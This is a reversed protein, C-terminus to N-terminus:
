QSSRHCAPILQSTSPDAPVDQCTSPHSPLEGGREAGQDVGFSVPFPVPHSQGLMGKEWCRKIGLGEEWLCVCAGPHSQQECMGPLPLPAPIQHLVKM